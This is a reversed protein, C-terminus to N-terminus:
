DLVLRVDIIEDAQRREIRLLHPGLTDYRSLRVRWGNQEFRELRGVADRTVDVAHGTALRGHLWDRLGLVPLTSGLVDAVLADPNAAVSQTGNARTLVAGNRDAEVRALTTGLPNAMDLRLARGDDRWVFSGQAGAQEGSATQVHVAFRGMRVYVDSRTEDTLLNPRPLGCAALVACLAAICVARLWATWVSM